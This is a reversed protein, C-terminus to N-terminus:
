GSKKEPEMGQRAKDVKRWNKCINVNIATGQFNEKGVKMRGKGRQQM